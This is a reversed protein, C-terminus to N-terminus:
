EAGYQRLLDALKEISAKRRPQAAASKELYQLYTQDASVGARPDAGHELLLCLIEPDGGLLAGLLPSSGHRNANADAGRELLLRAIEYKRGSAAWVLPTVGTENRADVPEGKDLLGRVRELDGAHVADFLPSRRQTATTHNSPSPQTPRRRTSQRETVARQRGVKRAEQASVGAYVWVFIALCIAALAGLSWLVRRGMRPGGRLAWVGLAVGSSAGIPCSFMLVWGAAEGQGQPPVGRLKMLADVLTLPVVFWALVGAVGFVLVASVALIGDMVGFRRVGVAATAGAPVTAPAPPEATARGPLLLALVIPLWFLLRLREGMCLMFALWLAMVTLSLVRPTALAPVGSVGGERQCRGLRWHLAGLVVLVLLSVSLVAPPGLMRSFVLLMSFLM